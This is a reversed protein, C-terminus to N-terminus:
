KKDTGMGPFEEVYVAEGILTLVAQNGRITIEVPTELHLRLAVTGTHSFPIPIMNKQVEVDVILDGEWIGAPLEPVNGEITAEAWSLTAAQVWGSGADWGPRGESKHIYARAFFVIVQSGITAIDGVVSDHLEIISNRM